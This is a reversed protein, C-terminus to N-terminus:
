NQGSRLVGASYDTSEIGRSDGSAAAARIRVGERWQGAAM